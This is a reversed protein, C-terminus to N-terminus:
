RLMGVLDERSFNRSVNSSDLRRRLDEIVPLLSEMRRRIRERVFERFEKNRLTALEQVEPPLGARIEEVLV